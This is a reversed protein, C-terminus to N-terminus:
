GAARAVKNRRALRVVEARAAEVFDLIGPGVRLLEAGDIRGVRQERVAKLHDFDALPLRGGDAGVFVIYPPDLRFLQELSLTPPGWAADAMANRAGAAAIAQGHLSDRRLYWVTGDHSLETGLIFLVEPSDETVSSRLGDAIRTSLAGAADAASFTRGLEEIGAVIDQATLWPLAVIQMDDRFGALQYAQSQETLVHTPRHRVLGELNPTIATGLGPLERVSDPYDCYDSRGVVREGLGLAFLTETMGPSLSVIRDTSSASDDLAPGCAVVFCVLLCLGVARASRRGFQELYLLRKQRFIAKDM